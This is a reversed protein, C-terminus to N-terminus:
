GNSISYLWLLQRVIFNCAPILAMSHPSLALHFFQQVGVFVSLSFIQVSFWFSQSETASHSPSPRCPNIRVVSLSHYQRYLCIMHLKTPGQYNIGSEWRRMPVPLIIQDYIMHNLLMLQLTHVKDVDLLRNTPKHTLYLLYFLYFFPPPPPWIHYPLYWENIWALRCCLIAAELTKVTRNFSYIHWQYLLRSIALAMNNQTKGQSLSSCADKSHVHLKHINLSKGIPVKHHLTPLMQYCNPRKKM